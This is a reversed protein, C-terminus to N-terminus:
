ILSNRSKSSTGQAFESDIVDRLSLVTVTFDKNENEEEEEEEEEGGGEEEVIVVVRKEEVVDDVLEGPSIGLSFIMWGGFMQSYLKPNCDGEIERGWLM